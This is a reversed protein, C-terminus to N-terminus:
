PGAGAPTGGGENRQEPNENVPICLERLNLRTVADLSVDRARAEAVVRGALARFQDIRSDVVVRRRTGVLTLEMWGGSRDRRTSYYALQIRRLDAWDLRTALPGHLVIGSGTVEMHSVGRRVAMLGYILFLGASLALVVTLAPATKVLLLPGAALALGSGSRAYDALTVSLPYAHVSV